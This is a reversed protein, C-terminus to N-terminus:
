EGNARDAMQTYLRLNPAASGDCICLYLVFSAHLRPEVRVHRIRAFLTYSRYLTALVEGGHYCM